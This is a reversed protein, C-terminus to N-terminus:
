KDFLMKIAVIILFIAFIKKLILSPLKIAIVSGIFAGIPFSIVLLLLVNKDILNNKYYNIVALLTVPIMLLALSTGQAVKQDLKLLYVMAPITLTAGGVGLLGSLVGGLLGILLTIIIFM